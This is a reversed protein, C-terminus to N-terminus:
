EKLKLQYTLGDIVVEKNNCNNNRQNFEEELLLKGDVYWYKNGNSYEVAPGDLRHRKGDVYWYKNGDNHEVAPGDIRHLKGDVYWAKNGEAYEIAPGGLRHYEGEYYWYRDGNSYVKVNYEIM